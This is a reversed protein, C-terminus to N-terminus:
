TLYLQVTKFKAKTNPSLQNLLITITTTTTEEKRILITKKEVYHHQAYRANNSDKTSYM